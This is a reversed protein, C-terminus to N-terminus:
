EAGLPYQAIADEPVRDADKDSRSLATGYLHGANSHGPKTTDYRTFKRRGPEEEIASLFGLNAPDIIDNGPFFSPTHQAQPELLDRISPVSGNHLYPGRLWIGGLPPAIYGGGNVMEQRASGGSSNDPGQTWQDLLTRDTGVESLPPVQGKTKGALDIAHCRACNTAFLLKGASVLTDNVPLPYAPARLNNVWDALSKHIPDSFPAGPNQSHARLTSDLIM